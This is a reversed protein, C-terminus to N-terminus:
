GSGTAVTMEFCAEREYKLLITVGSICVSKFSVESNVTKKGMSSAQFTRCSISRFYKSLLNAVSSRKFIRFRCATTVSPTWQDSVNSGATFRANRKM